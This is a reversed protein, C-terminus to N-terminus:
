VIKLGQETEEVDLFVAREHPTKNPTHLTLKLKGGLDRFVMGHGGDGDFLVDIQEWKGTIEGSASRAYCQCYGNDTFCSWLMILGGNEARFIYCGDTVFGEINNSKSYVTKSWPANSSKFLVVSECVANKLDSSLRVACITGDSIQVWEHCYILWPQSNEDVFLTGDLCMHEAPTVAKESWPLFPGLPSSAKLIATGRNCGDGIFSAFMFFEDNYFHVEPAWFNRTGWYNEPPTFVCFPGDWDTLNESTYANFGQGKEVWIDTDTSGYLYYKKDFVIVFPDRIQIDNIKM